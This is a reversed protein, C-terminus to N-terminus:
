IPPPPPAGGGGPPPPAAGGGPPPMMGGGMGGGMGGMGGAGQGAIHAMLWDLQQGTITMEDGSTPSCQAMVNQTNGGKSDCKGTVERIKASKDNISLIEYWKVAGEEWQAEWPPQEKIQLKMVGPVVPISGVKGGTDTLDVNLKNMLTRGLNSFAHAEYFLRFGTFKKDAMM